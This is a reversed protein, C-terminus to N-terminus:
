GCLLLLEPRYVCQLTTCQKSRFLHVESTEIARRLGFLTQRSRDLGLIKTVCVASAMALSCYLNKNLQLVITEGLCNLVFGSTHQFWLYSPVVSRRGSGNIYSSCALRKMKTRAGAAPRAAM